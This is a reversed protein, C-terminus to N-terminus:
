EDGEEILNDNRVSLGVIVAVLAVAAGVIIGIITKKSM